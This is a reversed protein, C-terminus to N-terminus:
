CYKFKSKILANGSLVVPTRLVLSMQYIGQPYAELFGEASKYFNTNGITTESKFFVGNITTGNPNFAMIM